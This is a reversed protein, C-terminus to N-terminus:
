QATGTRCRIQFKLRLFRTTDFDAQGDQLVYQMPTDTSMSAVEALSVEVTGAYATELKIKGATQEMVTGTLKDGNSLILTDAWTLRSALLLPLFQWIVRKKM